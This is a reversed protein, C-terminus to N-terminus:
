EGEETGTEPEKQSKEESVKSFFKKSDSGPKKDAKVPEFIEVFKLLRDLEAAYVKKEDLKFNEGSEVVKTSGDIFNIQVKQVGRNILNIM